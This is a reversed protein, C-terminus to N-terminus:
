AKFIYVYISKKKDFIDNYVQSESKLYFAISASFSVFGTWARTSSFDANNFNTSLYIDFYILCSCMGM